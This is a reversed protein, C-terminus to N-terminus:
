TASPLQTCYCVMCLDAVCNYLTFYLKWLCHFLTRPVLVFCQLIPRTDIYHQNGILIMSKFRFTKNAINQEGLIGWVWISVSPNFCSCQRMLINLASMKYKIILNLQKKTILKKWM